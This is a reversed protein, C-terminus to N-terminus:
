IKLFCMAPVRTGLLSVSQNGFLSSLSIAMFMLACAVHDLMARKWADEEWMDKQELVPLEQRVGDEVTAFAEGVALNLLRMGGNFVVANRTNLAQLRPYMKRILGYRLDQAPSKMFTVANEVPTFARVETDRMDDWEHEALGMCRLAASEMLQLAGEAYHFLTRKDYMNDEVLDPLGYTCLDLLQCGEKFCRNDSLAYTKLQTKLNNALRVREPLNLTYKPERQQGEPPRQTDAEHETTAPPNFDRENVSDDTFNFFEDM